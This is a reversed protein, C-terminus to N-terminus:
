TLVWDFDGAAITIAEGSTITVSASLVDAAYLTGAGNAASYLFADTITGWNGTATPSTLATANTMTNGTVTWTGSNMTVALRSYGNGSPETIGTGDDNVTTTSFGLYLTSPVSFSTGAFAALVANEVFDSFSGM